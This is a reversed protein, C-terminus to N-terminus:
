RAAAEEAVEAGVGIKEVVFYTDRREVVREVDPVVHEESPAVIFRRRNSRVRGYDHLTMDIDQICEMHACECVFVSRDTLLEFTENLEVLRANVERFLSQNQAARRQRLDDERM